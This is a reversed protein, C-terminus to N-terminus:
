IHQVEELSRGHACVARPHENLNGRELPGNLFGPAVLLAGVM